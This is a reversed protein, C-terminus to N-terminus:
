ISCRVGIFGGHLWLLLDSACFKASFCSRLGDVVLCARRDARTSTNLTGVEEVLTSQYYIRDFVFSKCRTLPEDQSLNRPDIQFCRQCESLSIQKQYQHCQSESPQYRRLVDPAIILTSSNEVPTQCRFSPTAASFSWSYVMIPPFMYTICILFYKVKQYRGFANITQYFEDFQM